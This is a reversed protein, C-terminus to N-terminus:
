KPWPAMLIISRFAVFWLLMCICGRYIRRISSGATTSKVAGIKSDQVDLGSTVLGFLKFWTDYKINPITSVQVGKVYVQKKSDM